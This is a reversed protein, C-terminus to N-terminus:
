NVNFECQFHKAYPGDQGGYYYEKRMVWRPWWLLVRQTHGMEAVMISKALKFVTQEEQINAKFDHCPLAYYRRYISIYFFFVVRFVSPVLLILLPVLLIFIFIVYIEM